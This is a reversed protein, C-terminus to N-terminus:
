LRRGTKTGAHRKNRKKSRGTAGLAQHSAEIACGRGTATFGLKDMDLSDVFADIARVSNDQDILEELPTAFLGFQIRSEGTRRSM